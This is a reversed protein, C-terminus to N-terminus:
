LSGGRGSTDATRISSAMRQANRDKTLLRSTLDDMIISGLKSEEFGRRDITQVAGKQVQVVVVGGGGPLGQTIVSGGTTSDIPTATHISSQNRNRVKVKGKNLSDLFGDPVSRAGTRSVVYEGRQAIVPIEDAALPPARRIGTSLMPFDEMYSRFDMGSHAKVWPKIWGGSHYHGSSPGHIGTSDTPTTPTPYSGPPPPSSPPNGGHGIPGQTDGGAGGPGTGPPPPPNNGGPIPPAPMSGIANGANTAEGTIKKLYDFIEKLVDKVSGLVTVLQESDPIFQEGIYGEKAAQDLLAQTADDTKLGFKQQAEWLKQLVPQMLALADKAAVGRRILTNYQAIADQSYTAFQTQDIRRAKTMGEIGIALGKIQQEVDDNAKMVERLHVLWETTANTSTVGLAHQLEILQDLGDGVSDLATSLDGTAQLTSLFANAMTQAFRKVQDQASQLADKGAKTGGARSDKLRSISTKGSLLDDFTGKGFVADLDKTAQAKFGTMQQSLGSIAQNLGDIRKQLDDFAANVKAVAAQFEEPTKANFVDALSVRAVAAHQILATLGGNAEIFDRRANATQIIANLKDLTAQLGEQTTQSSIERIAGSLGGGFRPDNILQQFQDQGGYQKYFDATMQAMQQKEKSSKRFAGAIGGIIGGILAGWPNGGSMEFGAQAGTLAGGIANQLRSASNTAQLFAASLQTVGAILQSMDGSKLGEFINVGADHAAALSATVNAIEQVVQSMSGGVIQALQQFMDALGHLYNGWAISGQHNLARDAEIMAKHADVLEQYTFRGDKLMDEYTQRADDAQQRLNEHAKIAAYYGDHEIGDRLADYKARIAKLTEDTYGARQKLAAEEKAQQDDLQQLQWEKDSMTRQRVTNRYDDEAKLRDMFNAAVDKSIADADGENIKKWYAAQEKATQQTSKAIHDMVKDLDSQAVANGWRKIADPIAVGAATAELTLNRISSGWKDIITTPAVFRASAGVLEDNLKKLQAKLSDTAKNAIPPPTRKAVPGTGGGGETDIPGIFSPGIFGHDGPEPALFKDKPRPTNPLPIIGGSAYNAYTQAADKLGQEISGDRLGKLISALAHAVVLADSLPKVIESGLTAALGLDSLGGLSKLDDWIEGVTAKIWTFLEKADQWTETAFAAAVAQVAPGWEKFKEVVWDLVSVVSDLVYDVWEKIADRHDNVWNTALELADSVKSIIARVSENETVFLGIQVLLNQYQTALRSMAGSYTDSLKAADGAFVGTEKLLGALVKQRVAADTSIRNMDELKLGAEKMIVSYNKTIGANDILMSNQNKIGETAGVIAQGFELTGQRNFAASDKFGKMLKIAEPLGFGASLLNKLGMAAEGITMLGDSALEQAAAKTADVDQGFKQAVTGLGLMASTYQNAAPVAKTFIFETLEKVGYIAGAVLATGVAAIATAAALAGTALTGFVAGLAKGQNISNQRVDFLEREKQSLQSVGAKANQILAAWEADAKARAASAVAARQQAEALLRTNETAVKAAQAQTMLIGNSDKVWKSSTAAATSAATAAAKAAEASSAYAKATAVVQTATKESTKGVEGLSKGLADVHPKAAKASDLIDDVAADVKDLKPAAAGDDVEIEIYIKRSEDSM